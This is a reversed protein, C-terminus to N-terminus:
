EGLCKDVGERLLSYFANEFSIFSCRWLQSQGRHENKKKEEGTRRGTREEEFLLLLLLLLWQRRGRVVYMQSRYCVCVCACLGRKKSERKKERRRKKRSEIAQKRVAQSVRARACARSPPRLVIQKYTRGRGNNEWAFRNSKEIVVDITERLRM